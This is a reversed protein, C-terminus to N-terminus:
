ARNENNQAEKIAKLNKLLKLIIFYIAIMGLLVLALTIYNEMSISEFYIDFINDKGLYSLTAAVAIAGGAILASCIFVILRYKTFPTCVGYLYVISLVSIAIVTMSRAADASYIAAFGGMNLGFKTLFYLLYIIFASLVATIVCPITKKSVNKLINGKSVQKSSPELAIFVSCMGIGCFEWIYLNQPEFPFKVTNDRSIIATLLFALTAVMVFITKNLFLSATRELNNVARRGQNVVDPLRSFNSDLLVVHSVNKAADAGSAMGISCDARKLALIDNVGDGTMAVTNKDEKLALILAEKQEPSVRGFVNYKNALSKVEEISKGELSIYLDAHDIGALKAIESVTIANDGSIVKIKVGNEKFWAFTSVADARVHDRIIILCVPELANMTGKAFVLVRNGKKQEILAKDLVNKKDVLNLLEPAGVVLSEGNNLEIASYKNSSEFPIVKKAIINSKDGFYSQLAKSTNNKDKTNNLLAAIGEKCENLTHAGFLIVNCVDMTGDTITGTKDVCLINCRALMEVSYFDQVQAKKRALLIVASALAVSTLLYLGAPVMGVVSGAINGIIAKISEESSFAGQCAYVIATFAVFFIVIIGIIFFLLKFSKLIESPSRSFKNAKSQIQQAYSDKGVKTAIIKASGRVVFSGAYVQDGKKKLLKNSEGTLLSENASFEGDVVIGDVSIQEGANLVIIDEYVIESAKISVEKGNRIVVAQPQTMIRLKSLLRKAHIDEYLGIIINPVLVFLFLLGKYREAYIMFGAIVFLIINFFSLVNTRFIEFNSKGVAAKTTNTLKQKNRILVQEDNLGFDFSPNFSSIEEKELNKKQSHM